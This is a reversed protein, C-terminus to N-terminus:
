LAKGSLDVQIVSYKRLRKDWKLYKARGSNKASAVMAVTSILVPDGVPLIFDNDSFDRLKENLSRVTPVPALMSQSHQMLIVVEGFEAAPTLDMPRTVGAVNSVPECVAYVISM